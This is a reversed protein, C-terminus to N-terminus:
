VAKQIGGLEGQMLAQERYWCWESPRFFHSQVVYQGQTRDACRKRVSTSAALFGLCSFDLPVWLCLRAHELLHMRHQRTLGM